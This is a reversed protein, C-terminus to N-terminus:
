NILLAELHRVYEVASEAVSSGIKADANEIIKHLANLSKIGCKIYENIRSELIKIYYDEFSIEESDDSSLWNNYDVTRATSHDIVPDKNSSCNTKTQEELSEVRKALLLIQYSSIRVLSSGTGDGSIKVNKALNKNCGLITSIKNAFSADLIASTGCVFNNNSLEKMLEEIESMLCIEQEQIMVLSLLTKGNIDGRGTTSMGIKTLPVCQSMMKQIFGSGLTNLIASTM